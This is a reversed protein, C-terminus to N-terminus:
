EYEPISGLGGFGFGLGNEAVFVVLVNCGLCAVYVLLVGVKSRELSSGGDVVAKM